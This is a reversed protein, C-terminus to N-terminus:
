PRTCCRVWGGPTSTRRTAKQPSVRSPPAFVLVLWCSATTPSWSMEHISCSTIFAKAAAAAVADAIDRVIALAQDSELPGNALLEALSSGELWRTVVVVRGESVDADVVRLVRPHEVRAAAQAAVRVDDAYPHDADLVLLGVPRDLVVDHGRWLSRGKGVAVEEILDYRSVLREM